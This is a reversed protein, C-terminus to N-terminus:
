MMDQVEAPYIRQELSFIIKAPAHVGSNIRKYEQTHYPQHVAPITIEFCTKVKTFIPPAINARVTCM